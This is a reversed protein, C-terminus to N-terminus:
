NQQRVWAALDEPTKISNTIIGDLLARTRVAAFRDDIHAGKQQNPLKVIYAPRDDFQAGRSAIEDERTWADGKSWLLQTRWSHDGMVVIASSDWEGRQELVLRLHALYRDALVLNDIYSSDGSTTLRFTRRNYIGEPHPIPLHLFLFDISSDALFRDATVYIEKYDDTHLQATLNKYPDASRRGFLYSLARGFLRRFPMSLNEVVSRDSYLGPAGPSIHSSWFCYDSVAGLIRCYPNYWGDIATSYGNKLADEFVTQHPDFSQWRDATADHLVLQGDGSATIRDIKIGTMLSPLVIETQIGVPIAHTFTNSQKALQDFAPLQLGPFRKEYVQQYSLEDLVLWVIRKKPLHTPSTLQKQHMARPRNLNRAQWTFWFIQGLIILGSLSVFAIMTVVMRQIREFLPLFAPKWLFWLLFPAVLTVGFATLNVSHPIPWQTLASFNELLLWPMSLIVTSWIVIRLRGPRQALLILATLLLWLVTLYFLIPVVIPSINGNLHYIAYHTPSVLPAIIGLLYFIALGLALM